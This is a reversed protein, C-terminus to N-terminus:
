FLCMYHQHCRVASVGCCDRVFDDSDIALTIEISNVPLIIVSLSSNILGFYREQACVLVLRSLLVAASQGAKVIQIVAFM